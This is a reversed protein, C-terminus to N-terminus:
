ILDDLAEAVLDDSMSEVIRETHKHSIEVDELTM